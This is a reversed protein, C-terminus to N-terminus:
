TRYGNDIEREMSEWEAVPADLAFLAEVARRRSEPGPPRAYDDIAARIVAGVSSASQAALQEVRNRQEPSLLVQTRESFMCM